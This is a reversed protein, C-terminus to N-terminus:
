KTDEIFQIIGQIKQTEYEVVANQEQKLKKLDNIQKKHDNIKQMLGKIEAENKEIIDDAKSSFGQMFVSLEKLRKKGDNLIAQINMGSTSILNLVSQRKVATPLSEPLAKSFGDIIFVTSTLESGLGAKKYIDQVNSLKNLKVSDDGHISIVKSQSEEAEISQNQVINGDPEEVREVIGLKEFISVVSNM